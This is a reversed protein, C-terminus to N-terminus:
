IMLSSAQNVVLRREVKEFSKIFLVFVTWLTFFVAASFPLLVRLFVFDPKASGSRM